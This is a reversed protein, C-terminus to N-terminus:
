YINLSYSIELLLKRYHYTYLSIYLILLYTPVNIDYDIMVHNNSEPLESLNCGGLIDRLATFEDATLTVNKNDDTWSMVNKMM